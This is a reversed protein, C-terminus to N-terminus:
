PVAHEGPLKPGTPEVEFADAVHERQREPDCEEIAAEAVHLPCGHANPWKPASPEVLLTLAVQVAHGEPM